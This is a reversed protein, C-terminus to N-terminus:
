SAITFQEDFNTADELTLFVRWGSFVRKVYHAGPYARSVDEIRPYDIESLFM